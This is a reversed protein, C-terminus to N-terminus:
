TAALRGCIAARPRVGPDGRRRMLMAVESVAADDAILDNLVEIMTPDDDVVTM